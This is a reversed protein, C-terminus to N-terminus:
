SRPKTFVCQDAYPAPTSLFTVVYNEGEFSLESSVGADPALMVQDPSLMHTSGDPLGVVHGKSTFWCAVLKQPPNDIAGRLMAGEFTTMSRRVVPLPHVHRLEATAMDSSTLLYTGTTTGVFLGTDLAALGNGRGPIQIFGNVADMVGYRYPQSFYLTNGALAWLRGEFCVAFETPPLSDEFAAIAAHGYDATRLDVVGACDAVHWLESGNAHSLYVRVNGYSTVSIGGGQPLAINCVLSMPGEVGTSDVVAVAIKYVGPLLKGDIPRLVPPPRKPLDIRRVTNDPAIMWYGSDTALIVGDPARVFWARAVAEIDALKLPTADDFMWLESTTAAYLRDNNTRLAIFQRGDLLTGYTQRSVVEGADDVLVNRADRLVGDTRKGDAAMINMGRKIQLDNM